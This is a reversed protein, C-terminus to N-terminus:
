AKSYWHTLEGRAFVRNVLKEIVAFAIPRREQLVSLRQHLQHLRCDSPSGILLRTSPPPLIKPLRESNTRSYALILHPM